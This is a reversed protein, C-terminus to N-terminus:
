QVRALWVRIAGAATDHVAIAFGEAQWRELQDLKTDAETAGYGTRVLAGAQLGAARGAALDTIRDGIVFSRGLDVGLRDRAEILMGAEPKRWAHDAALAGVGDRHYGCALVLDLAAGAAALREGIQRQVAEFEPWGYHGRAIGSQNTVVVVAIDAANAAAIAEAVGDVMRVDGARRLFHVDEVIVGDRDLFLAPRGDFAKSGSREAWLGIDDLQPM